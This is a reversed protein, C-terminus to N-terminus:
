RDDRDLRLIDRDTADQLRALASDRVHTAVLHIVDNWPLHVPTPDPNDRTPAPLFTVTHYDSHGTLHYAIGSPGTLTTLKNEGDPVPIDRSRSAPTARSAIVTRPKGDRAPLVDLVESEVLRNVAKSFIAPLAGMSAAAIRENRIRGSQFPWRGAVAARRLETVLEPITKDGPAWLNLDWEPEPAITYGGNKRRLYGSVALAGLARTVAQRGESYHHALDEVSPAPTGPPYNMERIEQAFAHAIREYVLV